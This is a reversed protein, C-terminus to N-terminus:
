AARAKEVATRLGRDTFVRVVNRKYEETGRLDSRPAAAGATLRAATRIADDDLEAGTLADEAATARFNIPGVATLAIGARNVRGDALSLHV